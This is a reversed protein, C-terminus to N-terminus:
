KIAIPKIVFMSYIERQRGKLKAYEDHTLPKLFPETDPLPIGTEKEVWELMQCFEPITLDASSKVVKVKVGYIVDVSELLCYEKVWNKLQKITYGSSIGILGLYLHYYRNQRESRRPKKNTIYFSIEDGIKCTVNLFNQWLGQSNVQMRPKGNEPNLVIKGGFIQSEYLSFRKLKPKKGQVM